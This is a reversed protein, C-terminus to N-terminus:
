LTAFPLSRVTPGLPLESTGPHVIYGTQEVSDPLLSQLAAVTAAVRPTPTANLKAELPVLHGQHRVLLDVETRGSVNWFYMEPTTGRSLLTAHVEAVMATEFLAGGMPGGMAAEPTTIGTLHCALGVDTLYVKPRKVLRKGVNAHYPPLLLVLHSAVLVSLWAKATNLAIGVERSVDALDLICGTRSAV